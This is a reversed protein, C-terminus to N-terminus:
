KDLLIYIDEFQSVPKTLGIKHDNIPSHYDNSGIHM